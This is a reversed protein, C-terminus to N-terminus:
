WQAVNNSEIGDDQTKSTENESKRKKERGYKINEQKNTWHESSM